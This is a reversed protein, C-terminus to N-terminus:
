VAYLYNRLNRIITLREKDQEVENKTGRICASWPQKRNLNWSEVRPREMPAPSLM